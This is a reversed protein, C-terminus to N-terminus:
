YRTHRFFSCLELIKDGRRERWVRAVPLVTNDLCCVYKGVADNVSARHSVWICDTDPFREAHLPNPSSLICRSDM